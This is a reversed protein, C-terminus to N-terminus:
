ELRTWDFDEPITPKPTAALAERMAAEIRPADDEFDWLDLIFHPLGALERTAADEPTDTFTDKIIDEFIRGVLEQVTLGAAETFPKIADVFFSPFPLAISEVPATTTNM